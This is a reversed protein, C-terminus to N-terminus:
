DLQFYHLSLMFSDFIDNYSTKDKDIRGDEESATRLATILKDHKQHISILENDILNKTHTLLTKNQKGFYLPLVKISTSKEWDLGQAKYEARQKLYDGREGIKVKLSQVFDAASGDLIMKEPGYRRYLDYVLDLMKNYDPRSFEETYLVEIKNRRFQTITIGFPSSGWGCDIGISRMAYPDILDPNYTAESVIADIKTQAFCTGVSGLFKLDYERQFTTYDGKAQDIEQQTYIKGLGIRYDLKLNYYKSDEENLFTEMFGGPKNPTSVFVVWPDSKTSAGEIASRAEWHTEHTFMDAEDVLFFAPKELGRFADPNNSPFAEINVGNLNLSTVASNFDVYIRNDFIRKMRGILKYALKLNPGVIIPMDAGKYKNDYLCLWAMYRLM